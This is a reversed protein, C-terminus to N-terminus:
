LNLILSRYVEIEFRVKCDGSETQGARCDRLAWPLQEEWCIAQNNWCTSPRSPNETSYGMTSGKGRQWLGEQYHLCDTILSVPFNCQLQHFYVLSFFPLIQPSPSVKQELLNDWAKGSLIYRIAFKFFDLPVFFVISYLWIVGAWGWGIGKIRAFGWNAYVAILTAM